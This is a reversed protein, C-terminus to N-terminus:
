GWSRSLQKFPNVKSPSRTRCISEPDSKWKAWWQPIPSKNANRTCDTASKERCETFHSVTVLYHIWLMKPTIRCVDPDSDQNSVKPQSVTRPPPTCERLVTLNYKDSDSHKNRNKTSRSRVTWCLATSLDTRPVNDAPLQFPRFVSGDLSADSVWRM